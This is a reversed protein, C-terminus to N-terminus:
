VEYSANILPLPDYKKNDMMLELHLHNGTSDGTSGVLAITQNRTVNDGKHVKLENCHAYLSKINNGHDIIIYKGYSPSEEAAEVKGSLVAKIEANEDSAIDVGYHYASEKSSPDERKGFNSNIKGHEVPAQLNTTIFMPMNEKSYSVLSLDKFSSVAKKSILNNFSEICEDVNDGVILSDNIKENYWNKVIEYAELNLTKLAMFSAVVILCAVIQIILLLPTGNYGKEKKPIIPEENQSDEYIENEKDLYNNM